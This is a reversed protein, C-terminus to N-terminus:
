EGCLTKMEARLDALEKPMRWDETECYLGQAYKDWAADLKPIIEAIKYLDALEKATLCNKM